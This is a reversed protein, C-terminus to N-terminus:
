PQPLPAAKFRLRFPEGKKWELSPAQTQLSELFQKGEEALTQDIDSKPLEQVVAGKIRHARESAYNFVFTIAGELADKRTIEVQSADAKLISGDSLPLDRGSMKWGHSTADEVTKQADVMRTEVMGAEDVFIQDVIGKTQLWDLLAKREAPTVEKKDGYNKEFFYSAMYAEVFQQPTLLCNDLMADLHGTHGEAAARIAAEKMAVQYDTIAFSVGPHVQKDHLTSFTKALLAYVDSGPKDAAAQLSTAAYHTLEERVPDNGGAVMTTQNKEAYKLLLYAATVNNHEAAHDLGAQVAGGGGFGKEKLTVFLFEKAEKLPRNLLFWVRWNKGEEIATKLAATVAASTANKLKKSWKRDDKTPEPVKIKGELGEVNVYPSTEVEPSIGNDQKFRKFFNELM